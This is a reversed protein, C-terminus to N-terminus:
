VTVELGAQRLARERCKAVDFQLLEMVVLVSRVAEQSRDQVRRAEAVDAFPVNGDVVVRAVQEGAGAAAKECDALLAVLVAETGKDAM